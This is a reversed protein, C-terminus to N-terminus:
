KNGTFFENPNAWFSSPYKGRLYDIKKWCNHVYPDKADGAGGVLINIKGGMRNIITEAVDLILLVGKQLTIRGVFSFLPVSYDAEGYNFYKM